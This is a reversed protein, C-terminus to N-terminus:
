PIIPVPQPTRGSASYAPGGAAPSRPSRRRSTTRRISCRYRRRASDVGRRPADTQGGEIAERPGNARHDVRVVIRRDREEVLRRPAVRLPVCREIEEGHPRAEVLEKPGEDVQARAEARLSVDRPRRRRPRRGVVGGETSVSGGAPEHADEGRPRGEAAGLRCGPIGRPGGRGGSAVHEREPEAPADEGVDTARGLEAARADDGHERLEGVGQALREARHAEGRKMLMKEMLRGVQGGRNPAEDLVVGDLDGPHRLLGAEPREQVVEALRRARHVVRETVELVEELDIEGSM